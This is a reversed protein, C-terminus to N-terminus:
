FARNLPGFKAIYIKPNFIVGGGGESNKRFNLRKLPAPCGKSSNTTIFVVTEFIQFLYKSVFKQSNIKGPDLFINKTQPFNGPLRELIQLINSYRNLSFCSLFSHSIAKVDCNQDIMNNTMLGTELNIM